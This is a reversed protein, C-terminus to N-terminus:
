KNNVSFKLKRLLLNNLLTLVIGALFVMCLALISIVFFNMKPLLDFLYFIIIHHLIFFSLTFSGLRVLLKNSLIKSVAGKSVAAFYIMLALAPSYYWGWTFKSPLKNLFVTQVIFLFIIGIEILSDESSKRLDNKRLNYLVGLLIGFIFDYIRVFPSIYYFWVSIEERIQFFYLFAFFVIFTMFMIGVVKKNSDIGLNVVANLILPFIVYLFILVSLFWSVPNYSFFVEYKPFFAHILTLNKIAIDFQFVQGRYIVLVLLFSLIHLPYLKLAKNILYPFYKFGKGSKFQQFHRICLLFGSVMLFYSIWFPQNKIMQYISYLYANGTDSYPLHAIFIVVFAIFRLSSIAPIINSVKSV